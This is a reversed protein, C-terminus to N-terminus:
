FVEETVSVFEHLIILFTNKSNARTSPCIEVPVNRSSGPLQISWYESYLKSNRDSGILKKELKDPKRDLICIFPLYL